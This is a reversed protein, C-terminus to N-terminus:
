QSIFVGLWSIDLTLFIVPLLMKIWAARTAGLPDYREDLPFM